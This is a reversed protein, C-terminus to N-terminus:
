NIKKTAGTWKPDNVYVLPYERSFWTDDNAFRAKVIYFNGTGIGLDGMDISVTQDKPCTVDPYGHYMVVTGDFSVVIVEKVNVDLNTKFDIYDDGVYGDLGVWFTPEASSLTVTIVFRLIGPTASSQLSADIFRISQRSFLSTNVQSILKSPYMMLQLSNYANIIATKLRSDLSLANVVTSFNALTSKVETLSISWSPYNVTPEITVDFNGISSVIHLSMHLEIADQLLLIEPLDLNLTYSVGSITGSVSNPIQNLNYQNQLFRNIATQTVEVTTSITQNTTTEDGGAKPLGQAQAISFYGAVLMYFLLKQM